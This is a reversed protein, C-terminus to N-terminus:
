STKIPLSSCFGVKHNQTLIALSWQPRELSRQVHSVGMKRQWVDLIALSTPLGLNQIVHDDIRVVHGQLRTTPKQHLCRLQCTKNVRRLWMLLNNSHNEFNPKWLKLVGQGRRVQGQDIGSMGPIGINATPSMIPLNMMMMMMMMMMLELNVRPHM